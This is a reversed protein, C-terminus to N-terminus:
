KIRGSLIDRNYLWVARNMAGVSSEQFGKSVAGLAVGAVVMSIYSERRYSYDVDLIELVIRTFGLVGATFGTITAIKARSQAKNMEEMAFDSASIEKELNKGFRGLPLIKADKVYWKGFYNYHLYITDKDYDKLFNLTNLDEAFAQQFAIFVLTIVIIKIKM